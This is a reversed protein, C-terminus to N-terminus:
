RYPRTARALWDFSREPLQGFNYFSVRETRTNAVADVIATVTDGDDVVPPGPQVGVHIPLEPTLENAVNVQHVVASASSEYALTTAYDLSDAVKPLDIGFLWEDGVDLTGITYGLQTDIIARVSEFLDVLSRERVSLYAGVRPHAEIWQLPDLSPPLTGDAIADITRVCTERVAEVDIGDDAAASRCEDCFCLGLLFTGLKGLEVFVKDHHWGHGSGFFYDFSELEIREFSGRSNLDRVLNELYARVAPQSPCLGFPLSDGHPSTITLDPNALGLRSNHCGVTWATVSIPSDALADTIEALWDDDGMRDAPVPELDGYGEDPQFYASARAFYSKSTPNTPSYSHVAHYNTAVNLEDIGASVLRDVADDVGQDRLDWPYAWMAFDM